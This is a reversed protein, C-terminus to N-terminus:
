TTVVDNNHQRHQFSIEGNGVDEDIVTHVSITSICSTLATARELRYKAGWGCAFSTPRIPQLWYIVGPRIYDSVHSPLLDWITSLISKQLASSAYTM